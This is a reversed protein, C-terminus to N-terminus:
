ERDRDMFKDGSRTIVPELASQSDGFSRVPIILAFLVLLLSPAGTKV